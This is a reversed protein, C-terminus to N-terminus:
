VWALWVHAPLEAYTVGLEDLARKVSPWNIDHGTMAGGKRVKPRWAEFDARVAATTHDAHIFVFDLSGDKIFQAAVVTNSKILWARSGFAEAAARVRAEIAEMPKNAYSAEGTERNQAPGCTREWRDVGVLRLLPFRKLLEFFTAGEYVGLEAGFHWNHERVLSALVEQRSM